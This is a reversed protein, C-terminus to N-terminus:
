RRRDAGPGEKRPGSKNAADKRPREVRQRDTRGDRKKVGAPAGAEAPKATPKPSPKAGSHPAASKAAFPKGGEKREPKPGGSKPRDSQPRDSKPRESQSRESKPGASKPRDARADPKAGDFRSRAPKGGDAKPGYPKRPHADTADRSEGGRHDTRADSKAGDFRPRAPKAGEPKGSDAKPGYPKRPRAEASDRTEAGRHHDARHEPKGGSRTPKAGPNADDLSLTRGRTPRESRDGADEGRKFTPKFSPKGDARRAAPKADDGTWAAQAELRKTASRPARPPAAQPTDSKRAVEVRAGSRSRTETIPPPAAKVTASAEARAKARLKTNSEGEGVVSDGTFYNAIQERVIRKPVEEVGSEELKGLQFPGYAVRILRNVVLGLAEMVKRIERNKGEKLAVTLWANRGQIRDLVAEIPGYKVGDITPGKALGALKIEDVEGFVRVRYRRTWGTAPLELFRALEGDNTLLLLGETTLDLRGISVVRPLEPPLRDFVTERGKEDRASTVLGSPKYYRWLRAPEPEPIVKGDVQVIDGPRVVCAPTALTQNNVAVRGEAIWREADRRSCLGARALRKAIREGGEASSAANLDTDSMDMLRVM